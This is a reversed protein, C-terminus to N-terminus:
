RIKTRRCLNIVRNRIAPILLRWPHKRKTNGKEAEHDANVVQTETESNVTKEKGPNRNMVKKHLRNGFRALWVGPCLVPKNARCIPSRSENLQL